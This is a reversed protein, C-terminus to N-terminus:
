AGEPRDRCHAALAAEGPRAEFGRGHRYRLVWHVGSPRLDCLLWPTDVVVRGSGAEFRVPRPGHLSRLRLHSPLPLHRRLLEDSVDFKGSRNRDAFGMLGRSWDASRECQFYIWRVPCLLVAVRDRSAQQSAQAYLGELGQALFRAPPGPFTAAPAPLILLSLLNALLFAGIFEYADLKKIRMPWEM